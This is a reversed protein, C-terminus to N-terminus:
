NLDQGMGATESSTHARPIKYIRCPSKGDAATIEM